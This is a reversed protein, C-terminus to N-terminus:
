RRMKSVNEAEERSFVPIANSKHMTAIGLMNNGTYVKTEQKRAYSLGTSLSQIRTNERGAPTTFTYSWDKEVKQKTPKAQVNHKKLWAEYEERVKKPQANTKSRKITAHIIM